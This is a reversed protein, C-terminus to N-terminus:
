LIINSYADAGHSRLDGAMHQLERNDYRGSRARLRLAERSQHACRVDDVMTFVQGSLDRREIKRDRDLVDEDRM